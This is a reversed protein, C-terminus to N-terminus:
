QTNKWAGHECHATAIHTEANYMKVIPESNIRIFGSGPKHKMFPFDFDFYLDLNEIHFEMIQPMMWAGNPSISIGRVEFSKYKGLFTMEIEASLSDIKKSKGVIKTWGQENLMVDCHFSYDLTPRSEPTVESVWFPGKGVAMLLFLEIM